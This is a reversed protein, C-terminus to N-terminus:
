FTFDVTFRGDSAFEIGDTVCKTFKVQYPFDYYRLLQKVIKKAVLFETDNGYTNGGGWSPRDSVVKVRFHVTNLSEETKLRLILDNAFRRAFKEEPIFLNTKIKM